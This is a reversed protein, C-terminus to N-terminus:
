KINALLTRKKPIVRQATGPRNSVPKHIQMM